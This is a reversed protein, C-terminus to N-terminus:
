NPLLQYAPPEEVPPKKKKFNLNIKEKPPEPPADVPKM